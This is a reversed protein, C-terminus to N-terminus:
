SGWLVVSTNNDVRLTLHLARGNSAGDCFFAYTSIMTTIDEMTHQGAEKLASRQGRMAEFAPVTTYAAEEVVMAHKYERHNHRM